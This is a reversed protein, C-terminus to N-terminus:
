FAGCPLRTAVYIFVDKAAALYQLTRMFDSALKCLDSAVTRPQQPLNHCNQALNVRACVDQSRKRLPCLKRFPDAPQNTPYLSDNIPACSMLRQSMTRPCRPMLLPHLSIISIQSFLPHRGTQLFFPLLFKPLLAPVFDPILNPSPLSSTRALSASHSSM